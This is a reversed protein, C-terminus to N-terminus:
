SPRHCLKTFRHSHTLWAWVTCSIDTSRPVSQAGKKGTGQAGLMWVRPGVFCLNDSHPRWSSAEAAVLPSREKDGFPNEESSDQHNRDNGKGEGQTVGGIQM